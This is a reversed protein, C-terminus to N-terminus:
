RSSGYVQAIAPEDARAAALCRREFAEREECSLIGQPFPVLPEPESRWSSPTGGLSACRAVGTAGGM